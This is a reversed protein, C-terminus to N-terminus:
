EVLLEQDDAFVLSGDDRIVAWRRAASIVRDDGIVFEGGPIEGYDDVVM